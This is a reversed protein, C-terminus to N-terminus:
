VIAGHGYTTSGKRFRTCLYLLFHVYAFKKSFFHLFFANKTNKLMKQASFSAYPSCKAVTAEPSNTLCLASWPPTRLYLQTTFHSPTARICSWINQSSYVLHCQLVFCCPNNLDVVQKKDWSISWVIKEVVQAAILERGRELFRM